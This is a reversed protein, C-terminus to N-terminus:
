SRRGLPAHNPARSSTPQATVTTVKHRHQRDASVTPLQALLRTM